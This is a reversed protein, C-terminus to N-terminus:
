QQSGVVEVFTTDHDREAKQRLFIMRDGPGIGGGGGGSACTLRSCWSGDAADRM